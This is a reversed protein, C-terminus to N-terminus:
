ISGLFKTTLCYSKIISHMRVEKRPLIKSESASLPSSTSKHWTNCLIRIFQKGLFLMPFTHMSHCKAVNVRNSGTSKPNIFATVLAATKHIAHFLSLLCTSLCLSSPAYHRRTCDTFCFKLVQLKRLELSYTIYRYM